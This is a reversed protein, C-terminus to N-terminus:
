DVTWNQTWCEFQEEYEFSDKVKLKSIALSLIAQIKVNHVVEKEAPINFRWVFKSFPSPSMIFLTFDSINLSLFLTYVFIKKETM